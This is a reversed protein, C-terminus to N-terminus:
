VGCFSRLVTQRNQAWSVVILVGGVLALGSSAVAVGSWVLSILLLLLAATKSKSIRTVPKQQRDESSGKFARLIDHRRSITNDLDYATCLVALLVLDVRTTTLAVFWLIPLVFLKDAIPDLVKGIPTVQKCRRAVYGDLGDTLAGIVLVLFSAITDFQWWWVVTLGLLVRSLSLLNPLARFQSWM